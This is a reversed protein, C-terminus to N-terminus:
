AVAHMTVPLSRLAMSLTSGPFQSFPDPVHKIQRAHCILTVNGHFTCLMQIMCALTAGPQKCFGQAPDCGM